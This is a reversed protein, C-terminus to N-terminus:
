WRGGGGGGGRYQGGGRGGGGYSSGGGGYSGGGGCLRELEPPVTQKADFLIDRLEKCFRPNQSMKYEDCFAVSTGKKGARGTRGIRHVYDEINNPMDFNIVLNVEKIDLGRSALGTAVLVQVRNQKFDALARDREEQTKDGHISAAKLLGRERELSRVISDTGRKTECFVLVKGADAGLQEHFQRLHNLLRPYKEEDRMLEIIQLIDTNAHLEESGVHVEYYDKLFDNALKQVDKPWTASWMLTQRDPRIQSVITRLQPEFGMDLMKDAEDLM